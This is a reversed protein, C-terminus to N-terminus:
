LMPIRELKWKPRPRWFGLEFTMRTELPLPERPNHRLHGSQSEQPERFLQCLQHLRGLAEPLQAWAPSHSRVPRHLKVRVVLLHLSLPLKLRPAKAINEDSSHHNSRWKARSLSNIPQPLPLHVRPFKLLPSTHWRSTVSPFSCDPLWVPFPRNFSSWIGGFSRSLAFLVSLTVPKKSAIRFRSWIIIADDEVLLAKRCGMGEPIEKGAGIISWAVLAMAQVFGHLVGEMANWHLLIDLRAKQPRLLGMGLGLGSQSSRGRNDSIWLVQGVRWSESRTGLM